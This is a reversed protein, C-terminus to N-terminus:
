TRKLKVKQNLEEMTPERNESHQDEPRDSLLVAKVAKEFEESDIPDCELPEPPKSKPRGLKPKESRKM